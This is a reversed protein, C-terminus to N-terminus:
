RSKLWKEFHELNMANLCSDKKLGGKRAAYVGYKVYSVQTRSHADPNISVWVGKEMCYDLWTYDIDLRLPNANLEIAVGNAACADIIKRHDVPYGQRALLLRGTPHGLIDTYPNEIATILRSMAKAEDMRLNSHVSAVVLDFRALLDAEYDLSGDGLIDSEIGKFVKFPALERNIADIEEMQELVREASLGNAYFASRSHDCIAFYEYGLDRVHLSMEMLTNIGDSYTSHNHVIGRIDSETILDSWYANAMDEIGQRDFLEAPLGAYPGNPISLISSDTIQFGISSDIKEFLGPTMTSTLWFTELQEPLCTKLHIKLREEYEILIDSADASELLTVGPLTALQERDMVPTVLCEIKRIVPTRTAFEGIWYLAHNIFHKEFLQRFAALEEEIHGYLYRDQSDLYYAIKQKLDEQTKLGFGPLKILRNETCAYLLEAPSEIKLAEWITKVKKPGLGKISLLQQIGEPTIAKLKELAEMKGSSVLEKIKSVVSSGVGPMADLQEPTMSEMPVEWKRLVLYASSYAKTKFANEGHLEMLSALLNFQRAIEKNVMRGFNACTEM